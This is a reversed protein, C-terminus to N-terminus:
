ARVRAKSHWAGDRHGGCGVLDEDGALGRAVAALGLGRQELEVAPLGGPALPLVLGRKLSFFRKFVARMKGVRPAKSTCM